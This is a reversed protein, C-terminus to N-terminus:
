HSSDEDCTVTLTIDHNTPNAKSSKSIYSVSANIPETKNPGINPKTEYQSSKCSAGDKMKVAKMSLKTHIERM